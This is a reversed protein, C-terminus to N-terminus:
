RAHAPSRGSSGRRTRGFGRDRVMLPVAIGDVASTLTAHLAMTSRRSCRRGTPRISCRTSSTPRDEVRRRPHGRRVGAAGNADCRFVACWEGLRPVVLRPILANTLEIDLSQALLDSAITAYRLTARRQLDDRRLRDNDLALGVTEAAIEAVHHARATSSARADATGARRDVAARAAGRDPVGAPEASPRATPRSRRSARGTPATSACAYPSATPPLRDATGSHAPNAPRHPTEVDPPPGDGAPEIATDDRRLEFWVVKGRKHHTTGWRDAIRDVLALGRGSPAYPRRAMADPDVEPLEGPLGDGVTVRLTEGDGEVRLDVATGAHRVANPPWSPPSCCPTM